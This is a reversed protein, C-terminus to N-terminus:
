NKAEAEDLGRYVRNVAALVQSFVARRQGCIRKLDEFSYPWPESKEVKNHPDTTDVIRRNLGRWNVVHREMRATLSTRIEEHDRIMEDFTPPRVGIEFDGEQTQITVWRVAQADEASSLGLTAPM